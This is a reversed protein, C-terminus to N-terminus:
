ISSFLSDHRALIFHSGYKHTNNFGEDICLARLSDNHIVSILGDHISEVSLPNVLLAGKGAIEAMAGRNSTIVARGVTQAELIPLGFGEALSAFLLIDCSHYLSM